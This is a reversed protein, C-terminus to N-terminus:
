IKNRPFYTRLSFQEIEPPLNSIQDFISTFVRKHNKMGRRRESTVSKELTNFTIEQDKFYQSLRGVILTFQRGNIQRSKGCQNRSRM